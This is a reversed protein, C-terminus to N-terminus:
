NFFTKFLDGVFIAAEEGGTGARIEVFADRSDNPDRDVLENELYSEISKKISSNASIDEEAIAKLEKDKENLLSKSEEISSVTLKYETYKKIIPDIKAFEQNLKKLLAHDQYINEDELQEAITKHKSALENLKEILKNNM